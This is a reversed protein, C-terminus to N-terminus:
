SCSIPRSVLKTEVSAGDDKRLVYLIERVPDILVNAAHRRVDSLRYLKRRSTAISAFDSESLEIQQYQEYM